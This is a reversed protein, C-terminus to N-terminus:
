GELYPIVHSYDKCVTVSNANDLPGPSLSIKGHLGAWSGDLPGNDNSDTPKHPELAMDGSCMISQRLYDVCHLYHSNYDSPIIDRRNTELGSFIRAMMFQWHM